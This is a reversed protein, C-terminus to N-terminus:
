VNESRVLPTEVLRLLERQYDVTSFRKKIGKRWTDCLSQERTYSKNNVTSNAYEMGTNNIGVHSVGTGHDQVTVTM